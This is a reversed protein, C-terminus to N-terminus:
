RPRCRARPRLVALPRRTGARSGRMQAHTLIVLDCAEGALFKDRMAGVPGFSGGVEVGETNAVRSVIGNAAGGSLFSLRTM